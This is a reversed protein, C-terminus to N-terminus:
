FILRRYEVKYRGCNLLIGLKMGPAKLLNLLQPKMANIKNRLALLQRPSTRIRFRMKM